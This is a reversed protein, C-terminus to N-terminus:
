LVFAQAVFDFEQITWSTGDNVRVRWLYEQGKVDMDTTHQAYFGEDGNQTAIEVWDTGNYKEFIVTLSAGGTNEIDLSLRPNYNAEQNNPYVNNFDLALVSSVSLSLFVVLLFLNIMVKTKTWGFNLKEKMNM